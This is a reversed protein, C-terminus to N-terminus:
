KSKHEYVGEWNAPSVVKFQLCRERLTKTPGDNETITDIEALLRLCKDWNGKYYYNLAESFRSAIKEYESKNSAPIIQFIRAPKHKGKVLVQDVERFSIGERELKAQDCAVITEETALIRVGYNKTLSELRSALNVTDGM